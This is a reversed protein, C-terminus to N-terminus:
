RHRWKFCWSLSAMTQGFEQPEPIYIEMSEKKRKIAIKTVNSRVTKYQWIAEAM